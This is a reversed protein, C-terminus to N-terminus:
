TFYGFLRRPGWSVLFAVVVVVVLFFLVVVLVFHASGLAPVHESSRNHEKPDIFWVRRAPVPINKLEEVDTPERTALPENLKSVFGQRCACHLHLLFSAEAFCSTCGGGRDHATNRQGHVAQPGRGCISPVSKSKCIWRRQGGADRQPGPTALFKFAASPVHCNCHCYFAVCIM